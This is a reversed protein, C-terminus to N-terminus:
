SQNGTLFFSLLHRQNNQMIKLTAQLGASGASVKGVAEGKNSEVTISSIIESFIQTQLTSAKWADGLLIYERFEKLLAEQSSFDIPPSPFNVKAIEILDVLVRYELALFSLIQQTQGKKEQANFASIERSFTPYVFFLSSLVVTVALCYFLIHNFKIEKRLVKRINLFAM